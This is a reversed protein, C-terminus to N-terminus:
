SVVVVAGETCDLAGWARGVSLLRMGASLLGVGASLLGVTVPVEEGRLPGVRCIGVLRGLLEGVGACGMM